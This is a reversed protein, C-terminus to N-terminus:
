HRATMTYRNQPESVAWIMLSVARAEAMCKLCSHRNLLNMLNRLLHLRSFSGKRVLKLLLLYFEIMIAKACETLNLSCPLVVLDAKSTPVTLDM